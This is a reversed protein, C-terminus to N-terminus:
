GRTSDKFLKDYVSDVNTKLDAQEKKSDEVSQGTQSPPRLRGTVPNQELESLRRLNASLSKVYEDHSTSVFEPLFQNAVNVQSAATKAM